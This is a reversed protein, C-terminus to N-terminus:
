PVLVEDDGEPPFPSRELTEARVLAPNTWPTPRGLQGLSPEAASLRFGQEALARAADESKARVIYEGQYSSTEWNPDDFDIPSLRYIAAM